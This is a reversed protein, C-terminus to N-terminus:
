DEVWIVAEEPVHAMVVAVNPDEPKEPLKRVQVTYRAPSRYVVVPPAPTPATRPPAQYGRYYKYYEHPPTGSPIGFPPGGALAPAAAALLLAAALGFARPPARWIPTPTRMPPSRQNPPPAARHGPRVAPAPEGCAREVM